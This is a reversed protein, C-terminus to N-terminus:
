EAKKWWKHLWDTYKERDDIVPDDSTFEERCCDACFIVAGVRVMEQEVLGCKVCAANHFITYRKKTWIWEWKEKDLDM